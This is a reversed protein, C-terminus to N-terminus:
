NSRGTEGDVTSFVIKGNEFMHVDGTEESVTYM